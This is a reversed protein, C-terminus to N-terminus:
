IWRIDGELVSAASTASKDIGHCMTHMYRIGACLMKTKSYSVAFDVGMTDIRYLGDIGSIDNSVDPISTAMDYPIM